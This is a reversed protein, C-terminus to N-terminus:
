EVQYDSALNELASLGDNDLGADRVIETAAAKNGTLEKASAHIRGSADYRYTIEVPSGKPLNPPLDHIRFDGIMACAAPDSAEGELVHVHVRQQNDSTTFFRQTADKPISSNRPIMIHNRKKTRDEPDTVQIGLSHSNVDETEVSKLRGQIVQALHSERGVGRAELIAAHIAAGQAV